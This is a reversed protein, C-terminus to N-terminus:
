PNLEIKSNYRLKGVDLMELIVNGSDSAREFLIQIEKVAESFGKVSEELEPLKKELVSSEKKLDAENDKVEGNDVKSVNVGGGNSKFPVNERIVHDNVKGKENEVTVNTDAYGDGGDCYPVQYKEYPEFFNLFDWASSSPPPPSPPKLGSFVGA